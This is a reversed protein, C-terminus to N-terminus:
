FAMGRRERKLEWNLRTGINESGGVSPVVKWPNGERQDGLRPTLGMCEM